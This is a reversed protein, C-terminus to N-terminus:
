NDSRNNEEKRHGVHWHPDGPESWPCRYPRMRGMYQQALRCIKEARHRSDYRNKRLCEWWKADPM